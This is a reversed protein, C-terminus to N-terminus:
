ISCLLPEAWHLWAELAFQRERVPLMCRAYRSVCHRVQFPSLRLRKPSHPSFPAGALRCLPDLLAAITLAHAFRM